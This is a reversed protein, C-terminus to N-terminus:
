YLLYKSRIKKFMELSTQWSLVVSNPDQGKKIARLVERSGILPLTKDIQFDNPYLRFLASVIEVGLASSDLTQRDV